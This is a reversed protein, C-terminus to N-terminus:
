GKKNVNKSYLISKKNQTSVPILLLFLNLFVCVPMVIQSLPKHDPEKLIMFDSLASFTHLLHIKGPTVPSFKIKKQHSIISECLVKNEKQEKTKQYVDYIATAIMITTLLLGIVLKIKRM